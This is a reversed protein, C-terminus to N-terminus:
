LQRVLQSLRRAIRLNEDLFELGDDEDIMLILHDRSGDIRIAHLNAAVRTQFHQLCQTKLIHDFGIEALRDTQQAQVFQDAIDDDKIAGVILRHDIDANGLLVDGIANHLNHHGFAADTFDSDIPGAVEIRAIQDILRACDVM